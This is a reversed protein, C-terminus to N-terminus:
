RRKILYGSTGGLAQQPRQGPAAEGTQDHDDTLHPSSAIQALEQGVIYRTVVITALAHYHLDFTAVNLFVGATAHGILSVQMM